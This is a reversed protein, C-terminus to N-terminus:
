FRRGISLYVSRPEGVFYRDVGFAIDAREAYDTDFLNTVNAGYYWNANFDAQYRLNALEHGPYRATNAEDTYYTGMHVWELELSRASSIQWRLQASGGVRPATDMDLGALRVVGPNVNGEYTHRAYTAAVTLSLSDSFNYAANIEVGRHRTEAGSINIRNSDQIIVNEKEMHYVAVAYNMEGLAGRLGLEYSNAKESDLDAVNQTGQLRYIENTDPSRFARAANAYVQTGSSLDHIWGLQFSSNDYDDSRDAPRNFRCGGNTCPVGNDRTRGDLMLNDYDYDLMEYRIGLNLQDADTMAYKLQAYPSLLRADVQYDYHKGVPITAVIVASGVAPASQTERLFGDTSEMDVGTQWSLQRYSGTLMSMLGFSEQGNEELPLGPLFHQLFTMDTKRYYPTLAIDGMATTWEFKSSLRYSKADRFSEPNPNVRKLREDKYADKGTIFGATEQNLNTYHFASTVTLGDGSYRHQLSLKQQDFGSDRKYGDDSTGNFSIRYGHDGLTNSSTGRVRSYQHPGAEFAISHDGSDSIPDSIVNIAGHLANAGYLISGPGRIVEVAGAQESNSEFMQNVNCFGIARLPIGDQAMQFAGCSGAGSLVPSRIATLSEQGNGRSIWTGPVRALLENIHTPRIKKIDDEGVAFISAPVDRLTSQRRDATVVISELTNGGPQALVASSAMAVGAALLKMGAITNKM